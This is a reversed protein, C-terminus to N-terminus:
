PVCSTPPTVGFLPPCFNSPTTGMKSVTSPATEEVPAFALMM